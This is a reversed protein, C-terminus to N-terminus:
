WSRTRSVDQMSHPLVKSLPELAQEVREHMAPRAPREAGRGLLVRLRDQLTSGPALMASGFAFIMLTLSLFLVLALIALMAVGQNRYDAPDCLVRHDAAAARFWDSFTGHSRHAATEHLRSKSGVHVVGPRTSAVHPHDHHAPGARYLRPG